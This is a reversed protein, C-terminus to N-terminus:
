AHRGVLDGRRVLVEWGEFKGWAREVCRVRVILVGRTTVWRLDLRDLVANTEVDDFSAPEQRVVGVGGGREGPLVDLSCKDISVFAFVPEEGGVVAEIVEQVLSRGEECTLEFGMVTLEFLNTGIASLPVRLENRFVEVSNLSCGVGKKGEVCVSEVSDDDDVSVGIWDPIGVSVIEIYVIDNPFGLEIVVDQGGFVPDSERRREEDPFEGAPGSVREKGPRVGDDTATGVLLRVLPRHHAFVLERSRGTEGVGVFLVKVGLVNEWDVDTNVDRLAGAPEDARGDCGSV